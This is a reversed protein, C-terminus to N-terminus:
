HLSFTCVRVHVKAVGALMLGATLLEKYCGVFNSASAAQEEPERKMSTVVKSSALNLASAAGNLNAQLEQYSRGSTDPFQIFPTIDSLFMVVTATQRVKGSQLILNAEELDKLSQDIEILGPLCNVVQNLAQSAAKAARALRMQKDLASPDEIAHKAESVLAVSEDMLQQSTSIIYEQAHPKKSFSAIAKVATALVGLTKATDKAAIGTFNENGQNAATVLQAMSSGVAKSAANLETVSNQLSQHIPQPLRGSHAQDKAMELEEKVQQITHIACDIELPGCM